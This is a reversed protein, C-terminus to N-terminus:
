ENIAIDGYVRLGDNRRQTLINLLTTKGSGSAGMIYTLHGPEAYGSVQNLVLKAETTEKQKWRFCSTKPIVEAYIDRWIVRKGEQAVDKAPSMLFTVLCCDLLVKSREKSGISSVSPTASGDSRKKELSVNAGSRSRSESTSLKRPSSVTSTSGSKTESKVDSGGHSRPESAKTTSPSDQYTSPDRVVSESRKILEGQPRMQDAAARATSPDQCVKLIPC